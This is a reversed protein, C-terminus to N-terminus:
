GNDGFEEPTIWTFDKPSRGRLQRAWRFGCYGFALCLLPLTLLGLPFSGKALLWFNFAWGWVSGIGACIVCAYIRFLSFTLRHILVQHFWTLISAVVITILIGLIAYAPGVASPLHQLQLFHTHEKAIADAILGLGAITLLGVICPGWVACWLAASLSYKRTAPLTACVMFVIAGICLFAFIILGFLIVIM